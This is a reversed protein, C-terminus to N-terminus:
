KNFINENKEGFKKDEYINIIMPISCIATFLIYGTFSWIDALNKEFVPYYRYYMKENTILCVFAMTVGAMCILTVKDRKHLKYNSFATRGPLGYGRSRMSDATEISNELSWTIMVSLIAAINKMRRFINGQNIDKGMCKRADRVKIFQEKFRPVYRLSMSIVLSLHPIIKGFIYIFKDSTMVIDYIGFWLIVSMMLISMFIGYIISELTLPNGSKFYGLITMGEHNFLPNIVIILLSMFVLLKLRGFVKKLGTLYILYILSMIFSICIVVPHMSFMVIAIVVIFYAFNVIPHYKSFSDTNEM